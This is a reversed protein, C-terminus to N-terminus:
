PVTHSANAKMPEDLTKIIERIKEDAKTRVKFEVRRSRAEDEHDGNMVPVAFALGNARLVKTLWQQHQVVKPIRFCYDLIAFSRQQSLLANNLYREELGHSGEWDTSTHGEIRVEEIADRYKPSALVAIYRPFFEVLVSQFKPKINKSGPDFLVEPEYFRITGDELIGAQWRTLDDKFEELLSQHLEEQYEQYTEAIRQASQNKNEVQQMFVVSIFLFVMMLGTMMDSVSIWVQNSGASM